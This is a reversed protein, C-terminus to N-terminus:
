IERRQKTRLYLVRGLGSLLTLLLTFILTKM